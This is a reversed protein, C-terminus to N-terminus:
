KQEAKQKRKAAMMKDFKVLQDTTMKDLVPINFYHMVEKIDSETEACENAVHVAQDPTIYQPATTSQVPPPTAQQPPAKYPKESQKTDTPPQDYKSRDKAYYVNAAMGLAKCAVGIADTLAMKFCEDSQYMGSREKAIFSSGGLGIIPQSVEGDVKVYLKITVFASVEDIGKELRESVIEYWWGFGCPGFQETLKKIRWMPNIDSMGKLRGGEISKLAEPPVAAVSNYIKMNEM